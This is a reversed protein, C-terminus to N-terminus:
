ILTRAKGFFAPLSAAIEKQPPIVRSLASCTYLFNREVASSPISWNSEPLRLNLLFTGSIWGILFAINDTLWERDLFGELALEVVNDQIFDVVQEETVKQRPTDGYLYWSRGSIYGHTFTESRIVVLTEPTTRTTM